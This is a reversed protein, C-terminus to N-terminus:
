ILRMCGIAYFLVRLNFNLSSFYRSNAILFIVSVSVTIGFLSYKLVRAYDVTQIDKKDAILQCILNGLGM